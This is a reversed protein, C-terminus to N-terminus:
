KGSEGDAELHRHLDLHITAPGDTLTQFPTINQLMDSCNRTVQNLNVKHLLCSAQTILMVNKGSSFFSKASESEHNLRYGLNAGFGLIDVELSAEVSGSHFFPIYTVRVPFHRDTRKQLYRFASAKAYEKFTSVASSSETTQCEVM